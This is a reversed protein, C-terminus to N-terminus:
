IQAALYNEIGIEGLLHLQEDLWDMYEEDEVLVGELLERSGHDERATCLSIIGRLQIADQRAMAFDHHLQEQIDEGINLANLKQLNPLGGLLLIRDTIKSAQKMAEISQKTTKKGLLSYGWNIGMRGHLYLQNIATLKSGLVENLGVLVKSDGQM